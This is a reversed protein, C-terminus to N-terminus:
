SGAWQGPMGNGDAGTDVIGSEPDTLDGAGNGHYIVDGGNGGSAGGRAIIHGFNQTMCNGRPPTGHVGDSNLLVAIMEQMEPFFAIDWTGDNRASGGYTGAGGSADIVGTTEITLNGGTANHNNDSFLNIAGGLGGYGGAGPAAGGRASIKGAISQDGDNTYYFLHGGGGAHGAGSSAGGDLTVLSTTTMVLADIVSTVTLTLAGATGGDGGSAGTAAGGDTHIEGAITIAGAADVKIMGGEGGAAAGAGGTTLMSASMALSSPATTDGINVTGAVGADGGGTSPGGRGDITGTLQVAGPADIRLAAAAGGTVAGTAAGGRLRVLGTIVVDTSATITIAGAAGAADAGNGGASALRGTVVVQKANIDIAGGAQAGTAPANLNGGTDVAGSVFVTGNPASLSLAQRAAGLEASRLTGEVYIDGNSTIKRVADSGGSKVMGSIQISADSTVDAALASADIKTAGAPAGPVAPALGPDLTVPGNVKIQIAGGASGRGAGSTARGGEVTLTPASPEVWVSTIAGNGGTGTRSGGGSASGLGGNDGGGGAGPAASGDDSCGALQATAAAVVFVGAVRILARM